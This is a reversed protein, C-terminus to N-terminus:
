NVTKQNIVINRLFKFNSDNHHIYTYLCKYKKLFTYYMKNTIYIDKTMFKKYKIIFKEIEENICVDNM